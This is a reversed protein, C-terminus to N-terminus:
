RLAETRSRAVAGLDETTSECSSIDEENAGSTTDSGSDQWFTNVSESLGTDAPDSVLLQDLHFGPRWRDINWSGSDDASEISEIAGGTIVGAVGLILSSVDTLTEPGPRHRDRDPQRNITTRELDWSGDGTTFDNFGNTM